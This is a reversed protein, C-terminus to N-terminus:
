RALVNLLVAGAFCAVAVGRLVWGRRGDDAERVMDAIALGLCVVSSLALIGAALRMGIVLVDIIISTPEPLAGPSPAGSDQVVAGMSSRLIATTERVQLAASARFPFPGIPQEFIATDPTVPSTESTLTGPTVM